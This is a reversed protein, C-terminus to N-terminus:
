NRDVRHPVTTGLGTNYDMEKAFSAPIGKIGAYREVGKLIVEVPKFTDFHDQIALRMLTTIRLKNDETWRVKTKMRNCTVAFKGGTSSSGTSDGLSSSSHHRWSRKKSKRKKPKKTSPRCRARTYM